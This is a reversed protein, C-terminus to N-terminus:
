AAEQEATAALKRLHRVVDGWAGVDNALTIMVETLDLSLFRNLEPHRDLWDNFGETEGDMRHAVHGLACCPQCDRFYSRKGPRLDGREIEDAVSRCAAAFKKEITMMIRERRM